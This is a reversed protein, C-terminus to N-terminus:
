PIRNWFLHRSKQKNPPHLYVNLERNTNRLSLRFRTQHPFELYKIANVRTFWMTKNNVIMRGTDMIETLNTKLLWSSLKDNKYPSMEFPYLYWTKPFTLYHYLVVSNCIISLDIDLGAFNVVNVLFDPFSNVFLIPDNTNPETSHISLFLSPALQTCAICIFWNKFMNPRTCEM